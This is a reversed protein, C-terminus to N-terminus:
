NNRDITVWRHVNGESVASAPIADSETVHELAKEAYFWDFIEDSTVATYPSTFYTQHIRSLILKLIENLLNKTSLSLKDIHQIVIKCHEKNLEELEIPWKAENPLKILISKKVNEMKKRISFDM